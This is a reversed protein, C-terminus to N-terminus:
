KCNSAENNLLSEIDSYRYFYTGGVKTPKLRGTARFSQLTGPSVNLLKRVERSRLWDKTRDPNPTLLQKIDSILQLRLAQLDEKTVVEINMYSTHQHYTNKSASDALIFINSGHNRKFSAKYKIYGYDNLDKMIKRYTSRASIKALQMIERSHAHIPFQFGQMQWYQLLAAYIGIHTISIRSDNEIAAFFKSLPELEEM